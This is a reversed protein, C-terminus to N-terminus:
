KCKVGLIRAKLIAEVEHKLWGSSQEGLTISPPFVGEGIHRYITKDKLTTIEEIDSMRIFAIAIKSSEESM